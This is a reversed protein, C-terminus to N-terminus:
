AAEGAPPSIRKVIMLTIDDFLLQTQRFDNVAAELAEAMEAASAMTQTQLVQRAREAGFREGMANTADTLGDTYLVLIDGSHLQVTAQKMMAADLLGVAIGTRTLELWRDQEARYLWPPNHGANVYTLAGTHPDLQAYFVTVFMGQASDAVVLRNVQTLCDAPTVAQVVSARIVSRAVAMFLAAPMGKDTVDAMVLGWQPTPSSTLPIFDYFDGSVERAPHWRAAFQWGPLVPVQHPLLSTQVARAVKLEHELKEKEILQTQAAQLADYAETLQRNKERLNHITSNHAEALQHSLVRLMEHSLAPQRQLLADFDARTMVLVRAATLTRASATRAGDRNLLSMEGVYDGPGRVSVQREETTGLSKVIEIHGEGIIFFHDGYDNERFLFAGPALDHPELTAALHQLESTPLLAFLPVQRILM